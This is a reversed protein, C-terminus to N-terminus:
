KEFHADLGKKGFNLRKNGAKALTTTSFEPFRLLM